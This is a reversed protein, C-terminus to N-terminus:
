LPADSISSDPSLDLMFGPKFGKLPTIRPYGFDWGLYLFNEIAFYNDIILQWNDIWLLEWSEIRLQM